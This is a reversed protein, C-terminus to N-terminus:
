NRWYFILILSYFIAKISSRSNELPLKIRLYFLSLYNKNWFLYVKIFITSIKHSFVFVCQYPSHSSDLSLLCLENHCPMLPPFSIFCSLFVDVFVFSSSIMFFFFCLGKFAPIITADRYLIQIECCWAHCKNVKIM